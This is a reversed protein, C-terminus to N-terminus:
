KGKADRVAFATTVKTGDSITLSVPVTGGPKMKADMCMLHFSGPTFRAVGGAPLPVKEVMSMGSMGGTDSSQHLMLMSCAPSSAGTIALNKM